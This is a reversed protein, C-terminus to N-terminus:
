RADKRIPTVDDNDVDLATQRPDERVLQRDRSIYALRGLLEPKPPKGGVDVTVAVADPVNKHPVVKVKVTLAGSKDVTAVGDLVEVFEEQAADLVEPRMANALSRLFPHVDPQNDHESM